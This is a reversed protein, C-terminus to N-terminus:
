YTVANALRAGVLLREPYYHWGPGLVNAEKWGENLMWLRISNQKYGQMDWFLRSPLLMTNNTITTLFIVNVTPVDVDIATQPM